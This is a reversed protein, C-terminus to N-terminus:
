RIHRYLLEENERANEAKLRVIIIKRLKTKCRTKRLNVENVVM